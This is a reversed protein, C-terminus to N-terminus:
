DQDSSDDEVKIIGDTVAQSIIDDLRDSIVENLSTHGGDRDQLYNDIVHEVEKSMHELVGDFQEQENIDRSEDSIDHRGMFCMLYAHNCRVNVVGCREDYNTVPNKMEMITEAFEEKSKVYRMHELDLEKKYTRSVNQLDAVREKFDRVEKALGTIEDHRRSSLQESLERMTTQAKYSEEWKSVQEKLEELEDYRHKVIKIEDIIDDTGGEYEIDLAEAVMCLQKDSEDLWPCFEVCKEETQLKLQELEEELEAYKNTLLYRQEQEHQVEQKLEVIEDALRKYISLVKLSDVHNLNLLLQENTDSSAVPGKLEKNEEQLEKNEKYYMTVMEKQTRLEVEHKMKMHTMWSGDEKMAESLAQKLTSM